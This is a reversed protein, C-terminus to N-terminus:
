PSSPHPKSAGKSITNSKRLKIFEAQFILLTFLVLDESCLNKLTDARDRMDRPKPDHVEEAYDKLNLYNKESDEYEISPTTINDYCYKFSTFCEGQTEKAIYDLIKGM